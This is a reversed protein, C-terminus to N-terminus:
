ELERKILSVKTYYTENTRSLYYVDDYRNQHVNKWEERPWDEERANALASRCSQRFVKMAEKKTRYPKSLWTYLDDDIGDFCVYSVLYINKKAM